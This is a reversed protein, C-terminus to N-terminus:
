CVATTEIALSRPTGMGFSGSIGATGDPSGSTVEISALLRRSSPRGNAYITATLLGSARLRASQVRGALDASGVYKIVGTSSRLTMLLHVRVPYLPPPPGIPSIVRVRATLRGALEPHLSSSQDQEIGRATFMTGTAGTHGDSCEFGSGQRPPFLKFSAAVISRPVQVSASAVSGVFGLALASGLAIMVRRVRM